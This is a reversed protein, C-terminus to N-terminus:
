VLPGETPEFSMIRQNPSGAKFGLLVKCQSRLLSSLQFNQGTVPTRKTTAEVINFLTSAQYGNGGASIKPTAFVQHNIIGHDPTEVAFNIKLKEGHKTTVKKIETIMALYTGSNVIPPPPPFGSGVTVIGIEDVTPEVVKAPNKPENLSDAMYRSINPM